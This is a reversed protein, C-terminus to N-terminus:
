QVQTQIFYNNKYIIITEAPYSSVLYKLVRESIGPRISTVYSINPLVPYISEIRKKLNQEGYFLIFRPDHEPHAQLLTGLSDATFENDIIIEGCNQNLYFRPMYVRKKGSTQEVVFYNLQDYKSLFVMAEVESSRSFLTTSFPLLLFNLSWFCILVLYYGSRHVKWFASRGIFVIWGSSGAVILFPLSFIVLYIGFNEILIGALLCILGPVAIFYLKKFSTVIGRFIFFSVPPILLIFPTIVFYFWSNNFTLDSFLNNFYNLIPNLPPANNYLDVPLQVSIVSASFALLYIVATTLKRFLTLSIVLAIIFVWSDFALLFGLGSLIGALFPLIYNKSNLHLGIFYVATMFLPISALVDANRVTLWPVFWLGALLIGTFSAIRPNFFKNVIKYGAIITNYSFLALMFRIIMVSLEPNTIHITQLAKFVMAHIFVFWSGTESVVALQTTWGTNALRSATEIVAFHEDDFLYGGSFFAAATRTVIALFFIFM